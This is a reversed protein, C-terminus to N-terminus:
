ICLQVRHEYASGHLVVSFRCLCQQAQFAHSVLETWHVTVFRAMVRVRDPRSKQRLKDKDVFWLSRQM